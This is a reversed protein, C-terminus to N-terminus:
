LAHAARAAGGGRDGRARLMPRNREATDTVDACRQDRRGLPRAPERRVIAREAHLSPGNALKGICPFLIVEEDHMGVSHLRSPGGVPLGSEERTMRPYDGGDKVAVKDATSVIGGDDHHATGGSSTM